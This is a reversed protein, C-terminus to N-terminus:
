SLFLRKLRCLIISPIDTLKPMLRTQYFWLDQNFDFKITKNEEINFIGTNVFHNLDKKSVHTGIVGINSVLNTYPKIVYGKKILIICTLQYDWTDILNHKTNNFAMKYYRLAYNPVKNNLRFEKSNDWYNMKVDYKKWRDRWSAWGWVSPNQSLFCESSNVGPYRPNFGNIMWIDKNEKYKELMYQCFGFFSQAPLCDDELIIGQEEHEFFWTIASSIARKCGLNEDRFLTMVECPWDVATAIQRTTACREAEGARQARPGDAAIYLRPPQAQRVAEFVQRTTDPRNFVLFLVASKM